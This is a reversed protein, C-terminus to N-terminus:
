PSTQAVARALIHAARIVEEKQTPLGFSIRFSALAQEMPIGMALLVPSATAQTTRCASGVSLCLPQAHEVLKMANTNEIALSLLGPARSTGGHVIFPRPCLLKLHDLFTQELDKMKSAYEDRSQCALECALAFAQAGAVNPTSSRLGFEHGGGTLQPALRMTPTTQHTRQVILCAAGRPAYIKGASIVALDATSQAFSFGVRAFGQVADIHVFAGNAHAMAAMTPISPDLVGTENNVDILSVCVTDEDIKKTADELDVQGQADVRLAVPVLPRALPARALADLTASVSSHCTPNYVFRTRKRKPHLALGRLALNNAETASSTFVIDEPSADVCTAIRQRANMLAHEAYDGLDHLRSAPNAFCRKLWGQMEFLVADAVPTAAAYDLYISDKPFPVGGFDPPDFGIPTKPSM